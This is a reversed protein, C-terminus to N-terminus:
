FFAAIFHFLEQEMNMGASQVRQNEIEIFLLLYIRNVRVTEFTMVM